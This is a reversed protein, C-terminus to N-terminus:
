IGRKLNLVLNNLIPFKFSQLISLYNEVLKTKATGVSISLTCYDNPNNSNVVRIEGSFDACIENPVQVEFNVKVPGDEPRLSIKSEPIFEWEGWTPYQIEWSIPLNSENINEVTFTDSINSGPKIWSFSIRDPSCEINPNPPNSQNSVIDVNIKQSQVLTFSGLVLIFIIWTAILKARM